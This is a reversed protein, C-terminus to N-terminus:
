QYCYSTIHHAVIYKKIPTFMSPTIQRRELKSHVCAKKQTLVICIYCLTRANLKTLEQTSHLRLCIDVISYLLYGATKRVVLCVARVNDSLIREYVIRLKTPAFARVSLQFSTLNCGTNTHNDSFM